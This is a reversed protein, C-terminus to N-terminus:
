PIAVSNSPLVSAAGIQCKICAAVFRAQALAFAQFSAPTQFTHLAGAADPWTVTSAGDAFVGAVQVCLMEAQIHSQTDPDCSYTGNLAPTSASTITVGGALMAAARQALTPPVVPATYPALVGGTVAWAGPSAMRAAWQEPTVPILNAAAPMNSYTAFGLDYWGTVPKPDPAGSDFTALYAM